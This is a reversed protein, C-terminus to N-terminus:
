YVDGSNSVRAKASLEPVNYVSVEVLDGAGLKVLSSDGVGAVASKDSKPIDSKPSGSPPSSDRVDSNTGVAEIASPSAPRAPAATEPSSAAPKQQARAGPGCMFSFVLALVSLFARDRRAFSSRGSEM